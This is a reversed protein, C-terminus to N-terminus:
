RQKTGDPKVRTVTGQKWSQKDKADLDGALIEQRTRTALRRAEDKGYVFEHGITKGPYFYAKLAPPAGDASEALELFLDGTPELRQKPITVVTTVLRQGTEDFIHVVNRGGEPNALRFTYTGPPLVTGPVQVATSFNVKTEEIWEPQASAESCLLAGLAFVAAPAALIRTSKM